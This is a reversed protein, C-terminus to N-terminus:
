IARSKRIIATGSKDPLVVLGESIDFAPEDVARKIGEWHPNAYDHIIPLSGPSLRPYFFQLAAKTPEYLDCDLHVVGIRTDVLDSPISASFFGKIWQVGDLGGTHQALDLSTDVFDLDRDQDQGTLDRSDFGEFTDFLYLQRGHARAYHALVAASSGRYVGLEAFHGPIADALVQKVNLILAYLRPLAAANNEVNNEVRSQSLRALETHMGFVVDTDPRYAVYLPSTGSM